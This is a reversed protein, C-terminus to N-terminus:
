DSNALHPPPFERELRELEEISEQYNREQLQREAVWAEIDIEEFLKVIRRAQARMALVILKGICRILDPDEEPSLHRALEGAAWRACYKAMLQDRRDARIEPNTMLEAADDLLSM